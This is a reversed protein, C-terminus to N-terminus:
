APLQYSGDLHDWLADLKQQLADLAEEYAERDLVGECLAKELVTSEIIFWREPDFNYTV